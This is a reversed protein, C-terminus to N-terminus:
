HASSSCMNHPPKACTTRITFVMPTSYGKSLLINDFYNSNITTFTNYLAFYISTQYQVHKYLSMPYLEADEKKDHHM